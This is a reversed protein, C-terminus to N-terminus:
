LVVGHEAFFEESLESLDHIEILTINNADCFKQKDLDRKVQSLFNARTKQFHPVFQTHQRGNLECAIRDTANYFDFRSRSGVVPFEEFVMKFKWYPRLFDKAAKQFKSLSKGDWDILYKSPSKLTKKRGKSDFFTM